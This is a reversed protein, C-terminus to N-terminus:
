GRSHSPNRALHSNGILDWRLSVSCYIAWSKLGHRHRDLREYADPLFTHLCDPCRHFVTHYAVVRRKIGGSSLVLDYVLRTRPSRRGKGTPTAGTTVEGGGCAPCRSIGVTVHQTVRPRPSGSKRRHSGIKKRTRGTRVYVRERQYDFYACDNIYKYDDHVFNVPGWKRNNAWRDLDGVNSVPPNGDTSPLEGSAPKARETAAYMFETVRKLAACDDMNYSTLKQRWCEERTAEWMKRWAISQIGSAGPDTWACGLWGGIDKLGNSLCPFYFHAYILSLINVQIKLL